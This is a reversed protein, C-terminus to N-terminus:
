KAGRAIKDLYKAYTMICLECALLLTVACRGTLLTIMAADGPLTVGPIDPYSFSVVAALRLAMLVCCLTLSVTRGMNRGFLLVLILALSVAACTISLWGYEGQVAALLSAAQSLAFLAAFAKYGKAANKSYGAVMYYGAFVLSLLSLGEGVLLAWADGARCLGQVSIVAGGALCVLNFVLVIKYIPNKLDAM